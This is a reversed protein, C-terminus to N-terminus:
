LSLNLGFTIVRPTPYPLYEMSRSAFGNNSKDINVEPDFGKFKTIVFLNTGSVFVNVNRVYKAIDGIKYNLTANRMKMFNGNELYKDSFVTGNTISEGSEFANKTVNLGKSFLGMNTVALATNNFVKNGFAGGMNITLSFKKYRFTNSFGLLVHPNPDGAYNSTSTVSDTGAKTYGLFHPMYFEFLPQNNAIVQAYTNSLGNGNIVGTIIPAQNFNRLVNKNYSINFGLDWSFDRHQVISSGLNFEFGSNIADAPLNLYENGSPAPQTATTIYVLRSTNKHYYDVSGYIRGKLLGFDFGLDTAKTQQWKLNPNPVNVQNIAGYSNLAFQGQAAGAPFSQDGTIGWSARIALNSFVSSKMFGENSVVWRAGLSPFYGYKNDSGFKSSGDARLTATLYYKDLLNFNVRAFYSQIEVTPDRPNTNTVTLSQANLLQDTNLISVRTSASSNINFGQGLTTQDYYNTKWYEYGLLGEFRLSKNLDAHYNLTHTITQSSLNANGIAGFGAGSVPNVGPLWGGMNTYREGTSNNVAYLFKYDLGNVINVTASINGLITNTLSKDSYAQLAAVPNPMSGSALSRFSGDANYFSYTPNWNLAWQMLNGGAGPTNSILQQDMQVHGVILNFDLTIRNKLLKYNGGFTALYKDLDTTKILGPTSSALFSARFKGNENGGSLNLHYNQGFGGQTIANLANINASSDYGKGTLGYKNLNSRFESANMLGINKMMGANTGFTAGFDVRLPGGTARKTSIVIVGNAGRSGYIAASSADKLVDVREIDNPDIYLLPNSNPATGFPLTGTGLNLSPTGDRSDLPVGDVVVLPQSVGSLIASNGRIKITTAGGPQGSSTSVELGPVKNTLLQDPAAVVGQNFDKVTVSAVAGTVDKKRATGYGIVVVENLNEAVSPKLSVDAVTTGSINVEQTGFGVSTVVLKSVNPGVSIIYTGDNATITGGKGGKPEVAAGSVPNGKDDTIKGKIVRTQAFTILCLLLMPAFLLGKLLRSTKMNM